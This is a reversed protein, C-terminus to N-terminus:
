LYTKSRSGHTIFVQCSSRILRTSHVKMTDPRNARRLHFWPVAGPSNCTGRSLHLSFCLLCHPPSLGGGASGEGAGWRRRRRGVHWVGDPNKPPHLSLFERTAMKEYDGSEQKNASPLSRGFVRLELKVKECLASLSDTLQLKSAPNTHSGSDRRPFRKGFSIIDM